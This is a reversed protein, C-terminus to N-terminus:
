GPTGITDKGDLYDAPQSESLTYVGPRLNNFAYSGDPATTQTASVAHGLDDTGSLTVTVGGIGSESPDKIGINNADVYVLGGLSAPTLEGFNNNAGAVGPGLVINAFQDNSTNGGPTGITDKGDLYNAPQTETLTYTGPRLGTFNYS